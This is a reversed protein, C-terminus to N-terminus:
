KCLFWISDPSAPINLGTSWISGASGVSSSNGNVREVPLLLDVYWVPVCVPFALPKSFNISSSYTSILGLSAWSNFISSNAKILTSDRLPETSTFAFIESLDGTPATKILKANGSVVRM